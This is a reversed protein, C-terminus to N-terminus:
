TPRRVVPSSLLGVGEIEVEVTQGPLIPGVGSPTGTAILDGPELTMVNAVFAVLAAPSFVMDRTRGDQRVEGDVRCVVRRDAEPDIGTVIWPGVPCFTDFGKARTFSKEARQITRASVDNLCTLGLIAERAADESVPGKVRRGIVLALEAEHHVEGIGEPIEIAEGPGVVASPPKLFFLPETPLANGLEQAHEAYNRGIGVIKSPAAPAVLTLGARPIPEGAGELGDWPAGALPVVREGDLRGWALGGAHRYRVIHM